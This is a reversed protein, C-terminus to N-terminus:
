IFFGNPFFINLNNISLFGGETYSEFGDVRAKVHFKQRDLNTLCSPFIIRVSTIPEDPLFIIEKLKIYFESFLNDKIEMWKESSITVIKTIQHVSVLASIERDDRSRTDMQRTTIIPALVTPISVTPITSQKNSNILVYAKLLLEMIKIYHVNKFDEANAFMYDVLPEM